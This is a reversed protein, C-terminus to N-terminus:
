SFGHAWVSGVSLFVGAMLAVLSAGFKKRDMTWRREEMTKRKKDRSEMESPRNIVPRNDSKENRMM